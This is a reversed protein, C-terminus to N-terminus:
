ASKEDREFLRYYSEQVIALNHKEAWLNIEKAEKLKSLNLSFSILDGQFKETGNGLYINESM